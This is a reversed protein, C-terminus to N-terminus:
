RTLQGLFGFASSLLGQKQKPSNVQPKEQSSPDQKTEQPIVEAFPDDVLM